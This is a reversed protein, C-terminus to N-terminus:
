INSAIEIGFRTVYSFFLVEAVFLQMETITTIGTSFAAKRLAKTPIVFDALQAAASNRNPTLLVTYVKRQQALEFLQISEATQTHEDAVFVFVATAPAAALASAAKKYSGVQILIMKLLEFRKALQRVSVASNRTGCLYIAPARHLCNLMEEVTQPELGQLTLKLASTNQRELKKIIQRVSEGMKIERYSSTDEKAAALLMKLEFYGNLGLTRCFRVITAASVGSEQALKQVSMKPVIRSHAQIYAALEKEKKSFDASMGKIVLLIDEM